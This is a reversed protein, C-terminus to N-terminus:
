VVSKRDAVAEPLPPVLHRAERALPAPDLFMPDSRARLRTRMLVLALLM